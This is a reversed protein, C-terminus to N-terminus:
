GKIIHIAEDSMDLAAEYFAEAFTPHAFIMEKIEEVGIEYKMAM